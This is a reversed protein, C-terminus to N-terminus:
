FVKWGKVDTKVEKEQSKRVSYGTGRLEAHLEMVKRRARTTSEYSTLGNMSLLTLFEKVTMFDINYGKNILDDYWVRSMLKRDSERLRSDSQLLKKVREYQESPKQM